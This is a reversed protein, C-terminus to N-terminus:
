TLSLNFKFVPSSVNLNTCNLYTESNVGNFAVWSYNWADELVPKKRYCHTYNHIYYHIFLIMLM